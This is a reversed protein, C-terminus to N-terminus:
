ADAEEKDSGSESLYRRLAAKARHLRSKITGVAVEQVRAAEPGSLGHYFVLELTERQDDPLERLAQWMEERRDAEELRSFPPPNGAPLGEPLPETAPPRRQRANIARYRAIALLWTRVQSEGRFRPAAQWAALMVDQLVEEARQREGLQGVLYSLLAAGHRQYLTDLAASDGKAMAQVLAVDPDSGEIRAVSWVQEM